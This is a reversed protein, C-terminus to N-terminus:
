VEKGNLWVKSVARRVVRDSREAILGLKVEDIMEPNLHRSRMGGTLFFHVPIPKDGLVQRLMRMRGRGEHGTVRPLENGEEDIRLHFFPIGVAYGQKVLKELEMSTPEQHGEDDLALSLFASPTMLGVFGEYWVNANSPVSGLGDRASFTVDGIRYDDEAHQPAWEPADEIVKAYIKREEPVMRYNDRYLLAPRGEYDKGFYFGPIDSEYISMTAPIFTGESESWMKYEVQVTGFQNNVQAGEVVGEHHEGDYECYMWLRPRRKSANDILKALLRADMIETIFQKFTQM